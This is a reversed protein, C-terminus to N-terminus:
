FCKLQIKILPIGTSLCTQLTRGAKSICLIVHLLVSYHLIENECAIMDFRSFAVNHGMNNEDGLQSMEQLIHKNVSPTLQGGVPNECIGTLLVTSALRCVM